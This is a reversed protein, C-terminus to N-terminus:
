ALLRLSEPRANAGQNQGLHEPPQSDRSVRGLVMEWVSPSLLTRLVAPDFQTGRCRILERRVTESSLAARYPRNSLMADITDAFRIIRAPIPIREGARREPYGTGDWNEHHCLISEVVDDRAGLAAVIKAGEAPHQQITIWQGPSLRDGQAMAARQKGYVTAVDHLLAATSVTQLMDRPLDMAQAIALAYQQVHLSHEHRFADGSESSDLILGLLVEYGAEPARGATLLRSAGVAV